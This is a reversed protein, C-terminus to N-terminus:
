PSVSPSVPMDKRGKENCCMLLQHLSALLRFNLKACGLLAQRNPWDNTHSERVLPELSGFAAIVFLVPARQAALQAGVSAGGLRSRFLQSLAQVYGLPASCLSGTFFPEGVRGGM